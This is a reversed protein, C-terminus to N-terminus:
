LAVLKIVDSWHQYVEEYIIKYYPLVLFYFTNIQLIMYKQVTLVTM